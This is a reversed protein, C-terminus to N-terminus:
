KIGGYWNNYMLFVGKVFVNPSAERKFPIKTM